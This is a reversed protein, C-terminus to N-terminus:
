RAIKESGGTVFIPVKFEDMLKNKRSCTPSSSFKQM